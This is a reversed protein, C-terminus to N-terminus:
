KIAFSHTVTKNFMFKLNPFVNTFKAITHAQMNKGVPLSKVPDAGEALNLLNDM